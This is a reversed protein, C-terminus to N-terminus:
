TRVVQDRSPPRLRMVAVAILLVAPFVAVTSILQQLDLGLTTQPVSFIGLIVRRALMVLTLLSGAIAWELVLPWERAANARSRLFEIMIVALGAGLGPPRMLMLDMILAVSAILWVPMFDPRRVVWVMALPLVLDPGPWHSSGVSLPLLQALMAVLAIAAFLAWHLFRSLTIPDVM